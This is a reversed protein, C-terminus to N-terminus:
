EVTGDRAIDSYSHQELHTGEGAPAVDLVERKTVDFILMDYRLDTFYGADLARQFEAAFTKRHEAVSEDDPNDENMVVELTYRATAVPVNSCNRRSSAIVPTPDLTPTPIM